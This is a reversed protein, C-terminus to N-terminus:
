STALLGQGKESRSSYNGAIMVAKTMFGDKKLQEVVQKHIAREKEINKSNYFQFSRLQAEDAETKKTAESPPISQSIEAPNPEKPKLKFSEYTEFDKQKAADFKAQKEYLYAVDFGGIM